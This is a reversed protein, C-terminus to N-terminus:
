IFKAFCSQKVYEEYTLNQPNYYESLIYMGVAEEDSGYVEEDLISNKPFYLFPIDEKKMDIDQGIRKYKSPKMNELNYVTVGMFRSIGADIKTLIMKKLWESTFRKRYDVLSFDCEVIVKDEPNNTKITKVFKEVEYYNEELIDEEKLKYGPIIFRFTLCDMGKETSSNLFQPVDFRGRYVVVEIEKM